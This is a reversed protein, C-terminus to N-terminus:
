QGVVKFLRLSLLKVLTNIEKESLSIFDLGDHTFEEKLVVIDGAIFDGYLISAILNFSKRKLLGEEDCVFCMNDTFIGLKRAAKPRVIEIWGNIVNGISRWYEPEFEVIEASRDVRILLGTLKTM